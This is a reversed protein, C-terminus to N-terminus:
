LLQAHVEGLDRGAPAGMWGVVVVDFLPTVAVALHIATLAAGSVVMFRRLKQYSERDRSLATSAALLMIIPGEILLSLPFVVGGHPRAVGLTQM